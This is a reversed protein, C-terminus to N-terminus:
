KTQKSTITETHEPYHNYTDASLRRLFRTGSKFQEEPVLELYNILRKHTQELNTIATRISLSRNSKQTMANFKDIGGYLDKYRPIRQNKEILPLNKLAQEEWTSVHVIMDKVSWNGDFVPKDLEDESFCALSDKFDGWFKDIKEIVQQKTM